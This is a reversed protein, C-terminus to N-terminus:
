RVTLHAEHAAEGESIKGCCRCVYTVTGRKEHVTVKADTVVHVDLEGSDAM